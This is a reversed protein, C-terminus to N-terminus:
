VSTVGLAGSKAVLNIGHRRLDRQHNHRRRMQSCPPGPPPFPIGNCSASV